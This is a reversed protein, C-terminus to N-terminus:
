VLATEFLYESPNWGILKQADCDVGAAPVVWFKQDVGNDINEINTSGSKFYGKNSTRYANGVCIATHTTAWYGTPELYEILQYKTKPELDWASVRVKQLGNVNVFKVVGYAGDIVPDWTTPNKEVLDLELVEEQLGWMAFASSALLVAMLVPIIAKKM